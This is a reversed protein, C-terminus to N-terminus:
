FCGEWPDFAPGRSAIHAAAEAENMAQLEEEVGIVVARLCPGYVNRSERLELTCRQSGFAGYSFEVRDGASFRVGSRVQRALFYVIDAGGQEATMTILAEINPHSFDRDLGMTTAQQLYYAPFEGEFDDSAECVMVCSGSVVALGPKRNKLREERRRMREESTM